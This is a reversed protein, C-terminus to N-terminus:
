LVGHMTNGTFRFQTTPARSTSYHATFLEHYEPHGHETSADMPLLPKKGCESQTNQLLCSVIPFPSAKKHLQDFQGSDHFSPTRLQVRKQLRVFQFRADDQPIAHLAQVPLIRQFDNFVANAFMLLVGDQM